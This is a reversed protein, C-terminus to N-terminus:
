PTGAAPDPPTRRASDPTPLDLLSAIRAEVLRTVDRRALGECAIPEGFRVRVVIKKQRAILGMSQAFTIEGVFGMPRCLTGDPHEYRLAVPIVRAGNAVAPEFLSSHFPLLKDGVTTTGEPFLGVCDGKAFVDHVMDNIRATDHRRARRIFLTGARECIWGVVPWDRIESKAIFRTPRVSSIAFIDIWSIHNSAFMVAAGPIAHPAEGEIRSEIALIHLVKASWWGYVARQRGQSLRLYGFRLIVFATAVHALIRSWRVFRVLRNTRPHTM